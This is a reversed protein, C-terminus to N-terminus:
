TDYSVRPDAIVYLIDALLYGVLQLMLVTISVSLFLERDNRYLSEIVLRGMGNISFITEVVISGTVLLPLFSAAVTILPILSNRLAHRFLVVREGLGKARATRVFDSSLSELMATRTLKSYYALAGYSVCLVPLALHWVSDMFYGRRDGPDSFTFWRGVALLDPLMGVTLWKLVTLPSSFTPSSFEASTARALLHLGLRVALLTGLTGFTLLLGRPLKGRWAFFTVWLVLAVLMSLLLLVGVVKLAAGGLDLLFAGSPFFSMTASRVDSLGGAPFAHIYEVNSLFGIFMVGVWIVPLSSVGLLVTGLGFDWFGGRHRAAWVGTLLAISVATPLAILQITLTVPLAATIIEWVPRSQIYSYGLEPKKITPRTLRPAGADPGVDVRRVLRDQERGTIGKAQLEARKADRLEQERAKAAVVEPADKDWKAFGVPSINNLWRLYQLPAPKNLGYREEIYAEKVAREGPRIEGGPPLLADIISIPSLAMLMFVLFTAGLITPVFLLIRRFLYTGM